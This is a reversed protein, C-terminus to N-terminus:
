GSPNILTFQMETENLQVGTGIIVVTVDVARFVLGVSGQAIVIGNNAQDQSPPFYPYSESRLNDATFIILASLITGTGYIYVRRLRKREDRKNGEGTAVHARYISFPTTINPSVTDLLSVQNITTRALYAVPIQDQATVSVAGNITEFAM